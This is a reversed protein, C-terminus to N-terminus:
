GELLALLTELTQELEAIREEPTLDVVPTEVEITEVLVGDVFIERIM